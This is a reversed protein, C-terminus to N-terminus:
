MVVCRKRGELKEEKLSREVENEIGRSGSKREEIEEGRAGTGRQGRQDLAALYECKLQRVAALAWMRDGRALIQNTNPGTPIGLFLKPNHRHEPHALMTRCHQVYLDFNKQHATLLFTELDLIYPPLDYNSPPSPTPMTVASPYTTDFTDPPTSDDPASSSNHLRIIQLKSISSARPFKFEILITSVILGRHPPIRDISVRRGLSYLRLSM